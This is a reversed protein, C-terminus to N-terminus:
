KRGARMRGLSTTDEDFDLLRQAKFDEDDAVAGRRRNAHSLYELAAQTTADKSFQYKWKKMQTVCQRACGISAGMAEDYWLRVIPQRKGDMPTRVRSTEQKYNPENAIPMATHICSWRPVNLGLQLLSRTGVIVKVAGSKAEALIDRRLDKNKQGAGGGVFAKAILSGHKENIMKVILHIHKVFVLPVVVSHGTAVDRLIRDVILENRKENKALAQMMYTWQKPVSRLKLGTEKIFVKPTMAEITTKAVVPGIVRKFIWQRGDKRDVTATVGFRYRTFFKNVVGAFVNAGARHVEDIGVTGINAMLKKFRASGNIKSAFQQYTCVMIQMTQYDEDTKPFGYLKKGAREQIEPLNTCKPIGEAENGEIHWLFQQLFEHQHALLIMRQGLKLAIYLLLLTKGTRPPAELLGYKRKLFTDVLQQQHPRLKATFKIKYQFPAMHRKDIIRHEDFSIGANAEIRSKDGVPLGIYHNGQINKTNFLKAQGFYNPCAECTACPREPKYECTSCGTDKFLHKIYKTKLEDMDYISKVPIYVRDRIFIKPKDKVM